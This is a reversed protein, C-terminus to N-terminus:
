SSFTRVSQLTYQLSKEADFMWDRTREDYMMYPITFTDVCNWDPFYVEPMLNLSRLRGSLYQTVEPLQTIPILTEVIYIGDESLAHNWTFPNATFVSMAHRVEEPSIDRFLFTMAIVSHKAWAEKTGIWRFRFGSILGRGLVHKNLHYAVDREPIKTRKAIDVVKIWPNLQLEKLILLDNHDFRTVKSSRPIEVSPDGTLRSFDVDWEGTSFDFFQTKVMLIDKWLLRHVEIQDILKMEQLMQLLKLLEANEGSPIHFECDFKHTLMSRSYYQLGASQHLGGFFPAVSDSLKPDTIRMFVRFRQLGLSDLDVFPYVSIGQDKLHLMRFRLTQYPLGLEKSIPNLNRAGDSEVFPELRSLFESTDDRAPRL